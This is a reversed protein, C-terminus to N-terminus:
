EPICIDIRICCSLMVVSTIVLGDLVAFTHAIRITIHWWNLDAPNVSFWIPLCIFLFWAVTTCESLLNSSKILTFSGISRSAIVFSLKWCCLSSESYISINACNDYSWNTFQGKAWVTSFLVSMIHRHCTWYRCPWCDVLFTRLTSIKLTTCALYAILCFPVSSAFLLVLSTLAVITYLLILQASFRVFVVASLCVLGM